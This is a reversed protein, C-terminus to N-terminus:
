LLDQQPRMGEAPQSASLYSIFFANVLMKADSATVRLTPAVFKGFINVLAV